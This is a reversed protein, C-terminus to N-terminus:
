PNDNETVTGTGSASVDGKLLLGDSGTSHGTVTIDGDISTIAANTGVYIGYNKETGSGGTGDMTINAAGVGTGTSTIASISELYIGSNLEGTGNSVGTIDIDGSVSTIAVDKGNVRIGMNAGSGSSSGNGVLTITGTGTSTISADSEFAIGNNWDGTGSGTGTLNIAGDVVALSGGSLSFGLNTNTNGGGLCTGTSINGTSTTRVEAGVELRIGCNFTETGGGTGSLTIDGASAEVVADSTLFLGMNRDEGGGGTGILEIDGTGSTSIKNNILFLGHNFTKGVTADGGGTGSLTIKGNQSTVSTATKMGSIIMGYCKSGTNKGTGSLTVTGIGTTAITSDIMSFGYTNTQDQAFGEMSINGGEADITARYIKVQGSQGGGFSGVTMTINGGGTTLFCNGGLDLVADGADRNAGDAAGDNISMILDGGNLEISCDAAVTISRGAQLTLSNAGATPIIHDIMTIDTNAQLIVPNTDLLTGLDVGDITVDTSPTTGFLYDGAPDSGGPQILINKPDIKVTGHLKSPLKFAGRECCISILDGYVSGELTPMEITKFSVNKAKIEADELLTLSQGADIILDGACRIHGGIAEPANLSLTLGGGLIVFSEGEALDFDDCSICTGDSVQVILEHESSQKVEWSGSKVVPQIQYAFLSGIIGLCFCIKKM